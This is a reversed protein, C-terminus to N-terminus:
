NGVPIPQMARQALTNIQWGEDAPLVEHGKLGANLRTLLYTKPDVEAAITEEPTYAEITKTM